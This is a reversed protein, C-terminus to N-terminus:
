RRLATFRYSKERTPRGLLKGLAKARVEGDELTRPPRSVGYHIFRPMPGFFCQWKAAGSNLGCGFWFLPWPSITAVEGYGFYGVRKTTGDGGVIEISHAESGSKGGGTGDDAIRRFHLGSHLGPNSRAILCNVPKDYGPLARFNGYSREGIKKNVQEVCPRANKEESQLVQLEYDGLFVRGGVVYKKVAVALDDKHISNGPAPDFVLDLDAPIAADIHNLAELKHIKHALYIEHGVAFAAWAGYVIGPLILWSRSIKGIAAVITVHLLMTNLILSVWLAAGMFMLYIGPLTFLQAVYVIAALILYSGIIRSVTSLKRLGYFLVMWLPVCVVLSVVFIITYGGSM